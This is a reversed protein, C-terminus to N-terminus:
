KGYLHQIFVRVSGSLLIYLYKVARSELSQAQLIVQGRAYRKLISTTAIQQLIDDQIGTFLSITRILALSVM